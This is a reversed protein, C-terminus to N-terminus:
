NQGGSQSPAFLWTGLFQSRTAGLQVLAGELDRQPGPPQAQEAHQVPKPEQYVYGHAYGDEAAFVPAASLALAAAAAFFATRM